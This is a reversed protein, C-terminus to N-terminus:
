RPYEGRNAALAYYPQEWQRNNNDISLLVGYISYAPSKGDDLYRGVFGRPNQQWLKPIESGTGYYRLLLHYTKDILSLVQQSNRQVFQGPSISVDRFPELLANVEDIFREEHRADEPNDFVKGNNAQFVTKM